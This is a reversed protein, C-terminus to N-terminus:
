SGHVCKTDCTLLSVGIGVETIKLIGELRLWETIPIELRALSIKLAKCLVNVTFQTISYNVGRAQLTPPRTLTNLASVWM